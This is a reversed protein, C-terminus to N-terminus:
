IERKIEDIIKKIKDYAKQEPIFIIEDEIENCAIRIKHPTGWYMRIKACLGTLYMIKDQRCDNYNFDMEERIINEMKSTLKIIREITM